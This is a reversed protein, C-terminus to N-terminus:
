VGFRVVLVEARGGRRLACNIVRELRRLFDFQALKPRIKLKKSKKSIVEAPRSRQREARRPRVYRGVSQRLQGTRM